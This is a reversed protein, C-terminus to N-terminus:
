PGSMRRQGQRPKPTGVVETWGLRQYMQLANYNQEDVDLHLPKRAIGRVADLLGSGVGCFRWDQEVFLHSVYGTFEDFIIFGVVGAQPETAVFCEGSLLANEMGMLERRPSTRWPFEVLCGLFVRAIGRHDRPGSPRITWGAANHSLTEMNLLYARM